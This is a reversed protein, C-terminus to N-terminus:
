EISQLIGETIVKAADPKYFSRAADSMKQRLAPDAIIKKIKDIILNGLLNEQEIVLAAGSKAYQYANEKQHNSAAEPLPVLIAPKGFLALEYITSAGSRSLAIDAALYADALDKDFYSKFQYRNKEIESWDKSLFEYNQKYSEFNVDGVQHLIQFDRVLEQIHEMIFENLPGSGQSGGLILILPLNEDFGFGRKAAARAKEEETRIAGSVLDQRAPNGSITVKKQNSFYDIASAFGVFIKKAFKGAIINSKGPISDSEHIIIPIGYFKCALIIPITGPGGKSFAANPMFWYIKWLAQFFGFFFKPIDIFNLFSFYRRWKSSIIKMFGIQNENLIEAFSIAGGFYRIDTPLGSQNTVKKIEEAVSILPYIHGGTGGGTLLIRLKKM